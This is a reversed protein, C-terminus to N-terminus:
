LDTSRSTSVKRKPPQNGAIKAPLDEVDASPDELSGPPDGEMHPIGDGADEYFSSEDVLSPTSHHEEQIVTQIRDLIDEKSTNGKGYRAGLKSGIGIFKEGSEQLNKLERICDLILHNERWSNEESPEWDDIDDIDIMKNLITTLRKREQIANREWDWAEAMLIDAQATRVIAQGEEGQALFWQKCTVTSIIECPDGEPVRSALEERCAKAIEKWNYNLTLLDIIVQGLGLRDVKAGPNPKMAGPVTREAVTLKDENM